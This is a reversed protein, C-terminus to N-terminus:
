FFIQLLLLYLMYAAKGFLMISERRLTRRASIEGSGERNFIFDELEKPGM